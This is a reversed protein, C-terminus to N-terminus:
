LIKKEGGAWPRPIGDFDTPDPCVTLPRFRKDLVDM